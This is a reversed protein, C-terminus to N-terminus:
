KPNTKNTKHTYLYITIARVHSSGSRDNHDCYWLHIIEHERGVFLQFYLYYIM